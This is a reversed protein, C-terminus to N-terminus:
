LNRFVFFLLIIILILSLAKTGILLKRTKPFKKKMGSINLILLLFLYPIALVFLANQAFAERFNFHLLAHFARQSGCGPCDLGTMKKFPCKLFFSDGSPNNEYYLFVIGALFLVIL